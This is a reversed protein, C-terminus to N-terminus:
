VRSGVRVQFIRTMSECWDSHIMVLSRPVQALFVETDWDHVAMLDGPFLYPAYTVMEWPKNGDDCVLLVPRHFFSVVKEAERLVDVKQWGPVPLEPKVIDFTHFMMDRNVTQSHLYHSLGGQETGLEIISKLDPHANLVKEYLRLDDWTQSMRRGCFTTGPEITM